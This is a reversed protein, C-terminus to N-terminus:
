GVSGYIAWLEELVAWVVREVHQVSPRISLVVRM